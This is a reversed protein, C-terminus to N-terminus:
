LEALAVVDFYYFGVVPVLLIRGRARGQKEGTGCCFAPPLIQVLDRDVPPLTQSGPLFTLDADVGQAAARYYPLVPEDEVRTSLLDLDDVAGERAAGEGFAGEPGRPEGRVRLGAQVGHGVHELLVCSRRKWQVRHRGRRVAAEPM